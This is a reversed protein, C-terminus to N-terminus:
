ERRRGQVRLGVVTNTVSGEFEIVSTRWVLEPTLVWGSALHIDRGAVLGLALGRDQAVWPDSGSWWRQQVGAQPRVRGHRGARIVPGVLVWLATFREARVPNPTAFPQYGLELFGLTAHVAAGSRSGANGGASMTSRMVGAGIGLPPIRSQAAASGAACCLSVAVIVLPWRYAVGSHM